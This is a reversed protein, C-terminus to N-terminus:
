LETTVDPMKGLAVRKTDEDIHTYHRSIEASEHGIIDRTVAESVGANKLLSTATHRLSHFTIESRQRPATRGQGHSKNKPP